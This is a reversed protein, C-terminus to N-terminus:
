HVWGSSEKSTIDRVADLVRLWVWGAAWSQYVQKMRSLPVRRLNEMTNNKTAIIIM